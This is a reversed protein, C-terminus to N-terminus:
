NRKVLSAAMGDVSRFNSEFSERYCLSSYAFIEGVNKIKANVYFGAYRSHASYLDRFSRIGSMEYVKASTGGDGRRM